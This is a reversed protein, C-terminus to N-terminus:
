IAACTARSRSRLRCRVTRSNMQQDTTRTAQPPKNQNGAAPERGLGTIDGLRLGLDIV